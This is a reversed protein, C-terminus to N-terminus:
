RINPSNPINIKGFRVNINVSATFIMKQARRVAWVSREHADLNVPEGIATPLVEDGSTTVTRVDAAAPVASRNLSDVM